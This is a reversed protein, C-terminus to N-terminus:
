LLSVCVFVCEADERASVTHTEKTGMEGVTVRERIPTVLGAVDGSQGHQGFLVRQTRTHTDTDTHLENLLRM